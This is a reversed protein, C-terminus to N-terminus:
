LKKLASKFDNIAKEAKEAGSVLEKTDLHITAGCGSCSMSEHSKLWGITERIEHGCKPCKFTVNKDDFLGM